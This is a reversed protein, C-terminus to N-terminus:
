TISNCRYLVICDTNNANADFSLVCAKLVFAAGAEKESLAVSVTPCSFLQYELYNTAIGSLKYLPAKNGHTYYQIVFDTDTLSVM